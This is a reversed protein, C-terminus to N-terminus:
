DDLILVLHKSFKFDHSVDKSIQFNEEAERALYLGVIVSLEMLFTQELAILKSYQFIHYVQVM